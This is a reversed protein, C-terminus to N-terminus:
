ISACVCVSFFHLITILKYNWINGALWTMHLDYVHRNISPSIYGAAFAVRRWAYSLTPFVKQVKSKWLYGPITWPVETGGQRWSVSSTPVSDPLGPCATLRRRSEMIVCFYTSSTAKPVLAWPRSTWHELWISATSSWWSQVSLSLSPSLFPPLSLTSLSPLSLLSLPLSCHLSLSPSISPLFLSLFLSLCYLLSFLFSLSLFIPPLSGGGGGGCVCVFMCSDNSCLDENNTYQKGKARLNIIIPSKKNPRLMVGIVQKGTWLRIPQM